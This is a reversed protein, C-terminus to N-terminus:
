KHVSPVFTCGRSHMYIYGEPIKIVQMWKVVDRGLAGKFISAGEFMKLDDLSIKTDSGALHGQQDDACGVWCITMAIIMVLCIIISVTIKM